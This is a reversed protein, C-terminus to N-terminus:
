GVMGVVLAATGDVIGYVVLRLTSVMLVFVIAATSFRLTKQRTHAALVLARASGGEKVYIKMQNGNKCHPSELIITDKGKRIAFGATAAIHGTVM